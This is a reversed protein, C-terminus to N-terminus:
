VQRWSYDHSNVNSHVATTCLVSCNQYDEKKDELCDVTSVHQRNSPLLSTVVLGIVIFHCTVLVYYRLGVTKKELEQMFWLSLIFCLNIMEVCYNQYNSYIHHKQEKQNFVQYSYFCVTRLLFVSIIAFSGLDICYDNHAM